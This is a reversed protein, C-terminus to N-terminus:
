LDHPNIKTPRTVPKTLSKAKGAATSTLNKKNVTIGVKQALRNETLSLVVTNIAGQSHYQLLQEGFDVMVMDGKVEVRNIETMTDLAGTLNSHLLPGKILEQLTAQAIHDTRNIM